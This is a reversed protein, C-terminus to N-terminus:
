HFFQSIRNATIVPTMIANLLVAAATPTAGISPRTFGIRTSPKRMLYNSVHVVDGTQPAELMLHDGLVVGVHTAASTSGEAKFFVLDGIREAGEPIHDASQWLDAATRIKEKSPFNKVSQRLGFGCLGSCDWHDMGTAGYKYPTGLQLATTFVTYRAIPDEANILAKALARIAKDGSLTRRGAPRPNTTRQPPQATGPKSAPDRAQPSQAATKSAPDSIPRYQNPQTQGPAQASSAGSDPSARTGTNGADTM